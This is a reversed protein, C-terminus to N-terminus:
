ALVGKAEQLRVLIDYCNAKLHVFEDVGAVKLKDALDETPNGALYLKMHESQEKIQKAVETGIELYSEDSGCIVAAIAGSESTAKAVEEATLFGDNTISEFGGAAFFGSVFDARAKHKPIPGLNALFVKPKLGNKQVYKDMAERLQEFSEAARRISLPNITIMKNGIHSMVKGITAGNRFANIMDNYTEIKIGSVDNGSKYISVEEIRGQITQQEEHSSLRKEDLNPYMNTGVIRSKRIEYDLQRKNAINAINSQVFDNKLAANMGGHQEVQTFLNWAKEALENTLSEVYWSGGAPDAVKNLQSEEQLIIQTNRSIRRSFEDPNRVPEDFPAVHMSDVGGVAASFAETTTRLMNVYPDFKTKNYTSTRAHIYMKKAEESGGFAEIIKAWIMKASRFKAIEMFVNSGISFSFYIQKAAQEIGIGRDVLSRLIEVGASIAFGLEQVASAGARAYPEGQILITRINSAHKVTWNTTQEYLDLAREYDFPATSTMALTGFYDFGGFVTLKNKNVSEKDAFALFSALLVSTSYGAQLYIPYKTIDIGNLAIKWDEISTFSMGNKGVSDSNAEDADLGNQVAEDFPINIMTLGREIDKKLRENYMEPTEGYIEQAVKWPTGANGLRQTGRVYSGEGPLDSMHLLHSADEKLYIPKLQIGEYTHTYLRNVPIGKLSKEVTEIWEEMKPVPFESFINLDINQKEETM